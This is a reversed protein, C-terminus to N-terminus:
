IIEDSHTFKLTFSVDFRGQTERKYGYEQAPTNDAAIEGSLVTTEAADSAITTENQGLVTTLNNGSNGTDAKETRKTEKAPSVKVNAAPKFAVDIDSKNAGEPVTEDTHGEASIMYKDKNSLKGTQANIEKMRKVTQKAGTGTKFQIVKPINFIFFFAVALAFLLIGLVLCVVYAIKYDFLPETAASAALFAFSTINM